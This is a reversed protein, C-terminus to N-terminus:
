SFGGAVGDGSIQRQWVGAQESWLEVRDSFYSTDTLMGAVPEAAPNVTTAIASAGGLADVYAGNLEAIMAELDDGSPLTARWEAETMGAFRPTDQASVNAMLADVQQTTYAGVQAATVQHPNERNGEHLEQNSEVADLRASDGQSQLLRKATFPTLYCDDRVGDIAAQESAPPYNAVNGLGVQAKTTRHPNNQDAIHLNLPEVAQKLIAFKGMRPTLVSANDLGEEAKAQTAPPFNEVLPLGIQAKTTQHPNNTNNIHDTSVGESAEVVSDALNQLADLLEASGVLDDVQQDHAVPPFSEPLVEIMGWSRVIPNLLKNSLEALIAQDNFGWPGGLTRYELRVIGSINKKLFRISGAIVQGTSEMAEVFRHGFLYDVGEVYPVNTNDNIVKMSKVFFPAAKPIIFHYEDRGPTQLTHRENTILNAPNTGYPDFPYLGTTVTTAM